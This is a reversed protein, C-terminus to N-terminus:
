LTGGIHKQIDVEVEEINEMLGCLKEEEDYLILRQSEFSCYVICEEAAIRALVWNSDPGM